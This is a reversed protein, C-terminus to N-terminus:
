LVAKLEAPPKTPLPPTPGDHVEAHRAFQAQQARVMETAGATANPTGNHWDEHTAPDAVAASCLECVWLGQRLREYAM